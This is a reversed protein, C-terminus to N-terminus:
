GNNGIIIWYRILMQPKMVTWSIIWAGKLSTLTPRVFLLMIIDPKQTCKMGPMKLCWVMGQFINIPQNYDQILTGSIPSSSALLEFYKMKFFKSTFCFTTRRPISKKWIKLHFDHGSICSSVDFYRLQLPVPMRPVPVALKTGLALRTPYDLLEENEGRMCMM